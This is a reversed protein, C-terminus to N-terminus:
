SAARQHAGDAPGAPRQAAEHRDPWLRYRRRHRAGRRAAAPLRYVRGDLRRRGPVRPGSEIQWHELAAALKLGGRSVYPQDEGLLRIAADQAVAAGPKDMKQESCWCAAPLFLRGLGSAAPLSAGSWWCCTLDCRERTRKKPGCKQRVRWPRAGFSDFPWERAPSHGKQMAEASKWARRSHEAIPLRITPATLPFWSRRPCTARSGTDLCAAPTIITEVSATRDHPACM